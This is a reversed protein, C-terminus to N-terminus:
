SALELEETVSPLTEGEGFTAGSGAFRRLIGPLWWNLDGMLQMIAPVLVLRILTADLAIAAVLGFGFEKMQVNSGLM